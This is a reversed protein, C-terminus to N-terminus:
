ERGGIVFFALGPLCFPLAYVLAADVDSTGGLVLLYIGQLLGGAVM